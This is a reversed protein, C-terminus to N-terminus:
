LRELESYDVGVLDLAEDIVRVFATDPSVNENETLWQFKKRGNMVIEFLASSHDQARLLEEIDAPYESKIKLEYTAM